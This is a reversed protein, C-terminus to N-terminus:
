VLIKYPQSFFTTSFVSTLRLNPNGEFGPGTSMHVNWKMANVQPCIKWFSNEVNAAEWASTTGFHSSARLVDAPFARKVDLIPYLSTGRKCCFLTLDFRPGSSVLVTLCVALCLKDTQARAATAELNPRRIIVSACASEKALDVSPPAFVGCTGHAGTETCQLVFLLTEIHNTNKM